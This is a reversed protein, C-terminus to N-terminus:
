PNNATQEASFTFTATTAATQFANATASPLTVRFCLTESTGAARVRDGAQTGQASDGVLKGLTSDLDGSYLLSAGDFNDCPTVPTTVDITRIDLDLQDKLGKADANTATASIAYRLSLTGGNTVVVDDIISDGPAMGSLTILTSAPAAALDVSGSSFTNSGVSASDTFVALSFAGASASALGLVMALPVLLRRSFRRGAHRRIDTSAGGMWAPEAADRIVFGLDHGTHRGYRSQPRALHRQGDRHQRVGARAWLASAGAAALCLVVLSLLMGRGTRRGRYTTPHM